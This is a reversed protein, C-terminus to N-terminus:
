NDFPKIRTDDTIFRVPDVFRVAWGGCISGECRQVPEAVIAQRCQRM